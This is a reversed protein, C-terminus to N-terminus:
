HINHHNLLSNRQQIPFMGWFLFSAHPNSPYTKSYLASRLDTCWWGGSRLEGISEQIEREREGRDRHTNGGAMYHMSM